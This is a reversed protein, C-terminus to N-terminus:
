NVIKPAKWVKSNKDSCLSGFHASDYLSSNYFMVKQSILIAQWLENLKVLYIQNLHLFM